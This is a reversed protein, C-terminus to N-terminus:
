LLLHMEELCSQIAPRFPRSNLCPHGCFAGLREGEAPLTHRQAHRRVRGEGDTRWQELLSRGKRRFVIVRNTNMRSFGFCFCLQDLLTGPWHHFRKLLTANMPIRGPRARNSVQVAKANQIRARQKHMADPQFRRVILDQALPAHVTACQGLDLTRNRCPNMSRLAM